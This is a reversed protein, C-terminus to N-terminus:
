VPLPARGDAWAFVADFEQGTGHPVFAVAPVDDIRPRRGSVAALVDRPEMVRLDGSLVFYFPLEGLAEWQLAARLSDRTISHRRTGRSYGGKVDILVTEQGHSAVLDPGWRLASQGTIRVGDTLARQGYLSVHWGRERLMRIVRDEHAQGVVLRQDFALSGQGPHPAYRSMRNIIWLQFPKRLQM